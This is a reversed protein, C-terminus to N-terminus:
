SMAATSASCSGNSKTSPRSPALTPCDVPAAAPFKSTYNRAIIRWNVLRFIDNDIRYVLITYTSPIVLFLFNDSLAARVEGDYEVVNEFFLDESNLVALKEQPLFLDYMSGYAPVNSLRGRDSVGSGTRVLPWFVFEPDNRRDVRNPNNLPQKINKIRNLDILFNWPILQNMAQSGTGRNLEYLRMTGTSEEITVLRENSGNGASPQTLTLPNETAVLMAGFLSLVSIALIRM